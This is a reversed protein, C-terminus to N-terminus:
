GTEALSFGAEKLRERLIVKWDGAFDEFIKGALDSPDEIRNVVRDSTPPAKRFVFVREETLKGYFFGLELIVNQRARFELRAVGGAPHVFDRFSAAVDDGSILVIAHDARGAIAKFKAFLHEDSTRVRKLVVPQIHLRELEATVAELMEEDHGHVVFISRPPEAARDQIHDAPGNRRGNLPLCGAKVQPRTRRVRPDSGHMVDLNRRGAEAGSAAGVSHVVPALELQQALAPRRHERGAPVTREPRSRGGRPTAPGATRASVYLEVDLAAGAQRDALRVLVAQLEHAPAGVGSVSNKICAALRWRRRQLLYPLCGRVSRGDWLGAM